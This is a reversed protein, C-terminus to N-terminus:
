NKPLSALVLITSKIFSILEINGIWHGEPTKETSFLSSLCFLRVLIYFHYMKCHQQLSSIPYFQVMKLHLKSLLFCCRPTITSAWEQRRRSSSGPVNLEWGEGGCASIVDPFGPHFFRVRKQQQQCPCWTWGTKWGRDGELGNGNSTCTIDMGQPHFRM